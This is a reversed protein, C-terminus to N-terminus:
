LFLTLFFLPLAVGVPISFNDDIDKSALEVIAGSFSAILVIAIKVGISFTNPAIFVVTSSVFIASMFFALSGELSRNNILETKGYKRGITAAIPDCFALILVAIQAIIPIGILILVVLATTYWTSSNVRYSEHSHSVGSAFNMLWQNWTQSYTRTIELTWAFISTSIAALGVWDFPVFQILLFGFIGSMVHFFSRQWNTPRLDPVSLNDSRLASALAGYHPSLTERFTIWRSPNEDDPIRSLHEQLSAMADTIKSKESHIEKLTKRSKKLGERLSHIDTEAWSAPDIQRILSHLELAIDQTPSIMDPVYRNRYM